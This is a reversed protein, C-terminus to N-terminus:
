DSGVTQALSSDDTALLAIIMLLPQECRLVMLLTLGLARPQSSHKFVPLV